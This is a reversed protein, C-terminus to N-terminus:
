EPGPLAPATYPLNWKAATEELVRAFTPTQMRGLFMVLANEDNEYYKKRLGIQKFGFSQYLGVADANSERVELVTWKVGKEYCLRLMEWLVRKGVKFGRYDPHVAMTTIHAEDLILWMGGYGVIRDGVRATMYRAVKNKELESGVSDKPWSLPFSQAEIAQVEAVDEMAMPTVNVQAVEIM